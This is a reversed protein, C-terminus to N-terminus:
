KKEVKVKKEEVVPSSNTAGSKKQQNEFTLVQAIIKKLQNIRGPSKPATGTAAQGNLKILEAKSDTITKKRDVKSMSVIDKFKM